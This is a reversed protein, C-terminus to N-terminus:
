AGSACTSTMEPVIAAIQFGTLSNYFMSISVRVFISRKAFWGASIALLTTFIPTRFQAVSEGVAHPLHQSIVISLLIRRPHKRIM